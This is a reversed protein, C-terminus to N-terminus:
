WEKSYVSSCKLDNVSYKNNFGLQIFLLM